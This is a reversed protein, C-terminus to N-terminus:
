LTHLTAPYAGTRSAIRPEGAIRGPWAPGGLPALPQAPHGQNGGASSGDEECVEGDEEFPIFHLFLRAGDQHSWFTDAIPAGLEQAAQEAIAAIQGLIAGPTSERARGSPEPLATTFYVGLGMGFSYCPESFPSLSCTAVEITM